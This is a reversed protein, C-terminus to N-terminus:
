ALRRVAEAKLAKVVGEIQAAKELDAEAGQQRSYKAIANILRNGDMTAIIVEEGKDNVYTEMLTENHASINPGRINYASRESNDLM